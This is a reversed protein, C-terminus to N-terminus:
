SVGRSVNVMPNDGPRVTAHIADARAEAHEGATTIPTM